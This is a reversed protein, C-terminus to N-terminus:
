GLIHLNVGVSVSTIELFDDDVLHYTVIAEHVGTPIQADLAFKELIAGVPIFPSSYVLENSEKLILDFYVTRNNNTSNEVYATTSPESSSPFVWEVNMRTEYYGDEVPSDLWEQIAEVNEQTVVTGRGGTAPTVIIVEREPEPQDNEGGLLIILTVAAAVIAVACVCFLALHVPKVSSGQKEKKM